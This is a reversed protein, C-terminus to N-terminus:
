NSKGKSCKLFKRSVLMLADFCFLLCAARIAGTVHCRTLSYQLSYQTINVKPVPFM